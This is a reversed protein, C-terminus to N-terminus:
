KVLVMSRSMQGTSTRMVYHYIGTAAAGGDATKGDWLVSHVGAGLPGQQLTVIRRGTVDYISLDVNDARKLDFDIRTVPNFPNPVNQRLDFALPAGQEVPVGAPDISRFSADDVWFAGGQLTPSIFLIYAEVRATNAPAIGIAAYRTWTGLKSASNAIVTESAGIETNAADKFVIRITGYNDNTGVIASEQCTVLSSVEMRWASGPTATFGQYLGSPADAVFTSFLKASGAPSRVFASRADYFVNGFTTWGTLNSTFSPNVLNVNTSAGVASEEFSLDDVFVAGTDCAPQLYLMLAEVRQAGPPVPATVTFENWRNLVTSYDGVVIENSSIEAGGSLANFFVVKAILRNRTCTATGPIPDGSSIFTYGSFTYQRGVLPSTFAQGYGGVSFVPSGPCGSFNGYIKSAAVGTRIINDGAPLSLQVGSGFTFWGSYSGGGAEFGPNALLNVAESPRAALTLAAGITLMLYFGSILRKM